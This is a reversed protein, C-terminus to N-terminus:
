QVDVIDSLTSYSGPLWTTGYDVLSDIQKEKSM